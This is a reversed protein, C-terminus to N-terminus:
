SPEGEREDDEDLVSRLARACAVYEPSLMKQRIERQAREEKAKQHWVAGHEKPLPVYWRKTDREWAGRFTELSWEPPVLALTPTGNAICCRLVRFHGLPVLNRYLREFLSSHFIVDFSLEYADYIETDYKPHNETFHLAPLAAVVPVEPSPPRHNPEPPRHNPEPPNRNPEPWAIASIPLERQAQQSWRNYEAKPLVAYWLDQAQEWANRFTQITWDAPVLALTTNHSFRMVRFCQATVFHGLLHEFAQSHFVIHRRLNYVAYNNQDRPRDEDFAL